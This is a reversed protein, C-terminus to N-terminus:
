RANASIFPHEAWAMYLNTQGNSNTGGSNGRIKFGNSLFDIEYEAHSTEANAADAWVVADKVNGVERKNDWMFWSGGSESTEKIIVLAPSFGTFVFPGDEAAGNGTYSGFKSFNEIEAFAYYVYTFGSDNVENSSYVTFVSSTPATDNWRNDNDDFAATDNLTLSGNEPSSAANQHYVCWDVANSRCKVMIVAPVKGLGHGVTKLGGEGTYTGISFGATANVSTSTTNITGDTNSSGSGNAKWNWAVYNESNDNYRNSSSALSFGDSAFGTFNASQDSEAVNENSRIGNDAGRVADHLMHDAAQSRNKLWVLDPQFGVGTINNTTDNGTYLITNFYETSLKITPTTLNQSCLAKYGSPVSYYFNGIGSGDTNGQAPKQGCFTGNQGFNAIIEGGHNSNFVGVIISGGSITSNTSLASGNKYVSFYNNDRDIAIGIIDGDTSTVNGSGYSIASGDITIVGTNATYSASTMNDINDTTPSYNIQVAVIGEDVDKILFEIYFAGSEILFTSRNWSNGTVGSGYASTSFLNGQTLTAPTINVYLPNFVAFNNTPSDLMVDNVTLNDPQYDNDQGSQDQYWDFDFPAMQQSYTNAATVTLTKSTGSNDTTVTSDQCCLLKTNTVATLPSTSPTFNSTYVATGNVLRFNSIWGKFHGATYEGLVGVGMKNSSDNVTLSTTNSAVSTGNLYITFTNSNRVLAVHNWENDNIATSSVLNVFSSGSNYFIFSNPKNNSDIYLSPVGASANSGDTAGQGCIYGTNGADEDRYVWAEITFNNTGLTFDSSDPTTIGTSTSGDFYVCYRENKKWPMYYGNTGYSGGVYKKPIWQGTESDTEGFDSAAKITGDILHTEALYGDLHYPGSGADYTTDGIGQSVTNNIAVDYNESPNNSTSFSTEQVGNIYIKVRNDATGQTTDFQLVLHYWAGVDRFLRNTIRWATNWGTVRLADSNTFGFSFYHSDDPSGVSVYAGFLTHYDSGATGGLGLSSRKCWTSFTFTKRNGESSPTRRLTPSDGQNFMLSQDIEYAKGGSASLLKTAGFSM